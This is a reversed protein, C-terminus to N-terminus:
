GQDEFLRQTDERTRGKSVVIHERWLLRLLEKQICNLWTVRRHSASWHNRMVEFIFSLSSVIIHRYFGVYNQGGGGEWVMKVKNESKVLREVDWSQLLWVPRRKTGHFICFAYRQKLLQGPNNARGSFYTRWTIINPLHKEGVQLKQEFSLKRILGGHLNMLIGKGRGMDIGWAKRIFLRESLYPFVQDKVIWIHEHFMNM